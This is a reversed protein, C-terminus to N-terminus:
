KSDSTIVNNPHLGSENHCASRTLSFPSWRHHGPLTLAWLQHMPQRNHYQVLFGISLGNQLWECVALDMQDLQYLLSAIANLHLM